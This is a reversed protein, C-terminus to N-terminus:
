KIIRNKLSNQVEHERLYEKMLELRERYHARGSDANVLSAAVYATITGYFLIGLM